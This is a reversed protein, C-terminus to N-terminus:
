DNHWNEIINNVKKQFNECSYHIKLMQQMEYQTVTSITKIQSIASRINVPTFSDLLIMNKGSIHDYIERHAPIDSAVVKCGAALAELINLPCGEYLSLSVYYESNNFLKFLDARPIFNQHESIEGLKVGGVQYVDLNTYNKLLISFIYNNISNKWWGPHQVFSIYKRENVVEDNHLSLFQEPLFVGLYEAGHPLLDIMWKAVTYRRLSSDSYVALSQEYLGSWTEMSQCFHMVKHSSGKLKLLRYCDEVWSCIILDFTQIAYRPTVVVVSKQSKGFTFLLYKLGTKVTPILRSPDVLSILRIDHNAALQSSLFRLIEGGGTPIRDIQVVVAIKMDAV